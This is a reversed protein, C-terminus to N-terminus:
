ECTKVSYSKNDLVSVITTFLPNTTLHDLQSKLCDELKSLIDVVSPCVKDLCYDVTGGRMTNGRFVVPHQNSRENAQKHLTMEAPVLTDQKATLMPIAEKNLTPFLESKKLTSTEENSVLYALKSITRLMSETQTIAEPMLLSASGLALSCPATYRM